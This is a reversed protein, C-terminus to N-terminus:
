PVRTERARDEPSRFSVPNEPPDSGPPTGAQIGALMRVDIAQQINHTVPVSQPDLM